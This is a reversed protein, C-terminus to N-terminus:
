VTLLLLLLLLSLNMALKHAKHSLLRIEPISYAFSSSTPLLSGTKASLGVSPSVSAASLAFGDVRPPLRDIILPRQYRDATSITGTDVQRGAQESSTLPRFLLALQQKSKRADDTKTHRASTSITSPPTQAFIQISQKTARARSPLEQIRQLLRRIRQGRM